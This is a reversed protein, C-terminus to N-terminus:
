MSLIAYSTGVLEMPTNDQLPAVPTQRSQSDDSSQGGGGGSSTRTGRGLAAVTESGRELPAHSTADSAQRLSDGTTEAAAADSKDPLAAGISLSCLADAAAFSGRSADPASARSTTDLPQITLQM